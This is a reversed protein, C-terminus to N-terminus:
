HRRELLQRLKQYSVPAARRSQRRVLPLLAVGIGHGEFDLTFTVRSRTGGDLPEVTITAHPRVPGDIGQAAWRHPPDNHTIRQRMARETGNIRRTTTFEADGVQVGVVDAQWEAFRSPDTAYAFVDHPPRAIEITSQQAAM